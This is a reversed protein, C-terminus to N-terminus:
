DRHPAKVTLLLLTGLIFLALIVTMGIRQSDFVDTVTAFLLPGVFAISKGTLAYLGFMKTVEEEPALRALLSRSAAQAPGVFLGLCLALVIFIMLQDVILLATGFSMLGCLAALITTKSGIRDDVFGFLAAGIGATVNLGIAFILVEEWTMGITGAAYLGGVAFLTSLGDRYLASAILFRLISGRHRLSAITVALDRLGGRIAEGMAMTRPPRDPTRLFLPLAFLGFWLAVMPGTARVNAADETPLGLLGPAGPLGVLLFLVVALSALGGMYGMGWSWGSIRGIMGPPAVDPLMANYFVGALEFAVSAVVVLILTYTIYSQNPEAFWLLATPLITLLVLAALWPKRRGLRDALSGLIPALVAVIIGSIGIAFGWAATGRTVDGYIGEMFYVSFVFTGIVTNFSSSAWDYVAWSFVGGVGAPRAAPGTM